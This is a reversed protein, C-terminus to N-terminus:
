VHARGIQITIIDDNAVDVATSAWVATGTLTTPGCRFRVQLTDTANTATARVQAFLQYEKEVQMGGALISYVGLRTEAVSNTLATGAASLTSLRM